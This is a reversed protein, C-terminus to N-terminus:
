LVPTLLRNAIQDIEDRGGRFAWVQSVDECQARGTGAGVAPVHYELESFSGLNSNVNCAQVAYGLDEPDNWPVDVYHGSPDVVINRVILAWLGNGAQYRYGIRGACALARIGIKQEGRACMRYRILRDGIQLDQSPITGFVVRPETKVYTPVLLEGGHPMQILNWLGVAPSAAAPLNTTGEGTASPRLLGDRLLSGEFQDGLDLVCLSTSQTYGAYAVNLLSGAQREHRLPNPAPRLSKAIEVEIRTDSRSLLCTARNVLREGARDQVLRYDGPDLSRPQWYVDTQPFKPFFFDVEPALWTRDGGSNHWQDSDYFQRAAEVSDLAPNTWYFNEESGPAFLGLTRGGYPLVLAATGDPSEYRRPPKGVQTLTDILNQKTSM